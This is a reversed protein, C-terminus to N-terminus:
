RRIETYRTALVCAGRKARRAPGVSGVRLRERRDPRGPPSAGTTPCKKGPVAALARPTPM